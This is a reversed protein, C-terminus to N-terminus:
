YHSWVEECYLPDAEVSTGQVALNQDAIWPVVNPLYNEPAQFFEHVEDRTYRHSFHMLVFTANPHSEIHPKLDSWLVHKSKAAQMRNDDTLFSCEMIVTPCALVKRRIEASSDGFVGEATTDGLFAFLPLIEEQTVQVGQKRLAGIERGPLGRFEAKLSQKRQAFCYGVCPVGHDMSVVDCVIGRKSDVVMHQGATVGIFEHDKDWPIEDYQQQTLDSTLQQAVQIFRTAGDVSPAPLYIKPPKSRSKIHTLFHCHDTHTHSIFYNSLRKGHVVYGADLGIDLEPICFATCDAAWSRGILEVSNSKDLPTDSDNLFKIPIRTRLVRNANCIQVVSKRPKRCACDDQQSSSM